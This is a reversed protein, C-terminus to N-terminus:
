ESKVINGHQDYKIAGSTVLAFGHDRISTSGDGDRVSWIQWHKSGADRHLTIQVNKFVLQDTAPNWKKVDDEYGGMLSSDQTPTTGPITTARTWATTWDAYLTVTQSGDDNPAIKSDKFDVDVSNEDTKFGSEWMADSTVTLDSPKFGSYSSGSALISPSDGTANRLNFLRSNRTTVKSSVDPDMQDENTLNMLWQDHVEQMTVAGDANFSDWDLGFTGATTVYRDVLNTMASKDNKTLAILQSANDPQKGVHDSYLVMSLSVVVIIMVGFWMWDGRTKPMPLRLGGKSTKTM